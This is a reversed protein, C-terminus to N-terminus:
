IAKKLNNISLIVPDTVVKVKHMNMDMIFNKLWDPMLKDLLMFFKNWFGPIILEKKQLMGAIAIRAVDEPNMVCWRGIGKQSNNQLFLVPTTNMPGPCVTSIFVNKGSLEKQLSKSFAILYSKTAGYVAKKPLNFIGALSSVNLIHAPANTKFQTFLHYILLTPAVVNLEIQRHYFAAGRDEFFHTGGIGANNILVNIHLKKIQIAEILQRCEEQKSLDHEFYFVTVEFNREIFCALNSLGSGPLAVLVLNMGRGACELSLAKGFGESAGTILAYNKNRM